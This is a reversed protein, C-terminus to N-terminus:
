ERVLAEFEGRSLALARTVDGHGAGGIFRDYVRGGRLRLDWDEAAGGAPQLTKRRVFLDLAEPALRGDGLAGFGEAFSSVRVGDKAAAAKGAQLLTRAIDTVTASQVGEAEQSVTKRVAGAVVIVRGMLVRAEEEGLTDPLAGFKAAAVKRVLTRADAPPIRFLTERKWIGVGNGFLRVSVYEGEFRWRIDIMVDDLSSGKKLRKDLSRTLPDEANKKGHEEAPNETRGGALAPPTPVLPLAVVIALGLSRIGHKM